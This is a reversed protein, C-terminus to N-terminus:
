SRRVARVCRWACCSRCARSSRTCSRWRTPRRNAHWCRTSRHRWRTTSMRTSFGAGCCCCCGSTKCRVTRERWCRKWRRLRWVVGCQWVMLQTMLWHWCYVNVVVDCLRKFVLAVNRDGNVKCNTQKRHQSVFYIYLLPASLAACWQRQKQVCCHRWWDMWFRMCNNSRCTSLHTLTTTALVHTHKACSPSSHSYLAPSCHHLRRRHLRTSMHAPTCM